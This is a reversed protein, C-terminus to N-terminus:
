VIGARQQAASTKEKSDELVKDYIEHAKEEGMFKICESLTHSGAEYAVRVPENEYSSMKIAPALVEMFESSGPYHVKCSMDRERFLDSSVVQSISNVNGFVLGRANLEEALEDANWELIIPRLYALLEDENQKRMGSSSFRSDDALEIQGIVECLRRWQEDSNICIMLSTGTKTEFTTFPAALPHGVGVPKPEEKTLMYDGFPTEMTAVLCDWMSVDVHQGEGTINKGLLAALTGVAANLGAICDSVSYGAMVLQGSKTGNISMFGSEAQILADYAARSRKSGKQGFGSISTLILGPNIEKLKEYGCGYKELTGPKFNELLVDATKVMELLFERQAPDNLDMFVSKKDRNRGVYLPTMANAGPANYRSSDGIPPRELKIIDAGMDALMMGCFPGSLAQTFELIRVGELPKM